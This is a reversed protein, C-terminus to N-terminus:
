HVLIRTTYHQNDTSVLNLVYSGDILNSIEFIDEIPKQDNQWVLQGYMNYLEASQIHDEGVNVIVTKTSPNLHWYTNSLYKSKAVSTSSCTKVISDVQLRLEPLLRYLSDGPCATACGDQHGAIHDLKTSSGSPHNTQGLPDIGDKNCKWTLLHTLAEISMNTPATSEYNGLVCIGMTGGNKGCFHAGKINDTSDIRQHERGEFISGDQAIVFNYGIDDWGNTQTHLLYINRVVNIYDTNSNSSAAHHVVCHNVEHRIRTGKPEPLGERWVNGRVVTPKECQNPVKKFHKNAPQEVPPAYFLYIRVEGSLQGSYFNFRHQLKAPIIFPSRREDGPQDTTPISDLKFQEGQLSTYVANTFNTENGIELVFSTYAFGFDINSYRTNSEVHLKLVRVFPQDTAVVFSEEIPKTNPSSPLPTYSSTLGLFALSLWWLIYPKSKIM